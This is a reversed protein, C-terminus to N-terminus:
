VEGREQGCFSREPNLEASQIMLATLGADTRTAHLEGSSWFVAEGATIPQEVGNGDSVWGAGDLVCFLQPLSAPHRAIQDGPGLWAFDIRTEGSQSGLLRTLRFSSGYDTIPWATEANIRFRKM